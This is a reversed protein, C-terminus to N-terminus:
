RGAGNRGWAPMRFGGTSLALLMTALLLMLMYSGGYGLWTPIRESIVMAQSLKQLNEYIVFILFATVVNGYVGSRPAMSALPLSLIGLVLVGLPIALRRM